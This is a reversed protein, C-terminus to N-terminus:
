GGTVRRAQRIMFGLGWMSAIACSILLAETVDIPPLLMPAPGYFPSACQGTAADFDSAKCHLVLVTEEM